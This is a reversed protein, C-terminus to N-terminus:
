ELMDLMTVKAQTAMEEDSFYVMVSDDGCSAGLVDVLNLKDILSCIGSAFQKITKIICINNLTKVSIVCTRFLNINKNSVGQEGSDVLAYKYKGESGIVKILGLEKIDRSITAQTVDFGANKLQTVLEDQTEIERTSILELIKSQRLSRAM